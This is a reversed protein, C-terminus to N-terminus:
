ALLHVTYIHPGEEFTIYNDREHVNKSALFDM